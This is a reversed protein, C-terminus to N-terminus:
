PTPIEKHAAFSAPFYAQEPDSSNWGPHFQTSSFQIPGQIDSGPVAGGIAKAARGRTQALSLNPLNTRANKELRKEWQEKAEIDM